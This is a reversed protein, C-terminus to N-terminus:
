VELSYALTCSCYGKYSTGVDPAYVIKLSKEFFCEPTQLPINYSANSIDVDLPWNRDSPINDGIGGAVQSTVGLVGDIIRASMQYNDFCVNIPRYLMAYCNKTSSGYLRVKSSLAGDLYVYVTISGYGEGSSQAYASLVAGEFYGSGSVEVATVNGSSDHLSGSKYLKYTRSSKDVAKKLTTVDNAMAVAGTELAAIREELAKQASDIKSLAIPDM